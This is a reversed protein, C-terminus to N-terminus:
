ITSTDVPGFKIQPRITRIYLNSHFLLVLMLTTFYTMLVMQKELGLM